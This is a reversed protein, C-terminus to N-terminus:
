IKHRIGLAGTHLCTATQDFLTNTCTFYMITQYLNIYYLREIIKRMTICMEIYVVAWSCMTLWTCYSWAIHCERARYIAQNYQVVTHITYTVLTKMTLYVIDSDSDSDSHTSCWVDIVRWTSQRTTRWWQCFPLFRYHSQLGDGTIPSAMISDVHLCNVIQLHIKTLGSSLEVCQNTSQDIPWTNIM